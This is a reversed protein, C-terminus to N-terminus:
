RSAVFTEAHRVGKADILMARGVWQVSPGPVALADILIQGTGCKSAIRMYDSVGVMNIDGGLPFVGGITAAAFGSGACAVGLPDTVRAAFRAVGPTDSESSLVMTSSKRLSPWSIKWAGLIASAPKAAVKHAPVPKRAPAAAHVAQWTPVAIIGALSAALALRWPFPRMVAQKQKM